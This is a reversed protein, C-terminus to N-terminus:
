REEWSPMPFVPEITAVDEPYVTKLKQGKRVQVICPGGLINQGNENFKIGKWPMIIDEAPVELNTLTDRLKQPNTSGAEELAFYLTKLGTYGRATHGDLNEGYKKKFAANVERSLPKKIDPAWRAEDFIYNALGGVGELYAKKCQGGDLAIVAKPSFNLTKRTKTITIADQAYSALLVIDPNSGKLQTIESTLDNAESPYSINSVVNLGYNPAVKKWVKAATSGFLTNECMLGVTDIEVNRKEALKTIFKLISRCYLGDHPTTRFFYDWGHQTLTTSTSGANVMPIQYREAVPAMAATTSSLCSGILLDVNDQYILKETVSKTVKPDGESDAFIVKLKAGGLSKVGGQENIRSAALSISKKYGQGFPAFAGTMPYVAGIKVVDPHEAEQAKVASSTLLLTGMLVVLAAILSSKVFKM